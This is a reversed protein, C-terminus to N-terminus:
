LLVCFQLQLQNLNRGVSKREDKEQLEEDTLERRKRVIESKIQSSETNAMTSGRFKSETFTSNNAIRREEQQKAVEEDRLQCERLYREKDDRAHAEFPAKDVEPLERWLKSVIQVVSGLSADKGEKLLEQRVQSTNEKM